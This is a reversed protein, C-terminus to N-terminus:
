DRDLVAIHCSDWRHELLEQLRGVLLPLDPSLKLPHGEAPDPAPSSM